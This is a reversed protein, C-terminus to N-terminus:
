DEAVRTVRVSVSGGPAITMEDGQGCTLLAIVQLRPVSALSALAVIVITMLVVVVPVIVLMACTLEEVASGSEVLLVADCSVSTAGTASRESAAACLPSKVM